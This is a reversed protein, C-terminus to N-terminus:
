LYIMKIVITKNENLDFSAGNFSPINTLGISQYNSFGIGEVPLFFGKDIKGNMNEDHIIKVAYKGKPIQTFTVDSFNNTIKGIIIKYYSKLEKDPFSGERDYLLFIVEGKNSRFKNVEIKLDINETEQYIM